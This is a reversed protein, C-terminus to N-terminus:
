VSEKRRIMAFAGIMIMLVALAGGVTSQCGFGISDSPTENEETSVADTQSPETASETSADTEVSDNEAESRESIYTVVISLDKKLADGSVTVVDAVYGEIVPSDVRYSSGHKFTNQYAPAAESGDAYQYKIQLQRQKFSYVFTVEADSGNIVGNASGEKAEYNVILLPTVTYEEGNPINNIVSSTYLTSGDELVYHVMVKYLKKFVVTVSVDSTLMQGAVTEITPVYGNIGKTPILYYENEFVNESVAPLATAGNEYVYNISVKHSVTSQPKFDENYVVNGNADYVRMYCIAVTQGRPIMVNLESLTFIDSSDALTVVEVGNMKYTLTKDDADYTISYTNENGVASSMQAFPSDPKGVYYSSNAAAKANCLMQGNTKDIDYTGSRMSFNPTAANTKDNNLGIGYHWGDAVSVGMLKVEVTYEKLPTELFDFKTGVFINGAANGAKIVLRGEEDLYYESVEANNQYDHIELNWVDLGAKPAYVVTTVVDETGMKGSVVDLSPSFGSIAPSSINYFSNEYVEKTVSEAASTGDEYTYHVTVNHKVASANTFDQNYVLAGDGDYVRMYSIAITQLKPIMINFESLKNDNQTDKVSAVEVGNFKHTFTQTDNDWTLSFVNEVGKAASMESFPTNPAGVKYPQVGKVRTTCILQGNTNSEDYAGSRMSFSPIASNTKDNNYAIGYHWGDNITVGVLAAEITWDSLTNKLDGLGTGVFSNGGTTGSKVVLRGNTDLYADGLADTAGSYGKIHLGFSSILELGTAGSEALVPCALSLLIVITLTLSLLKKM